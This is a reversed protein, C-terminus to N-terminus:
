CRLLSRIFVYTFIVGPVVYQKVSYVLCPWTKLELEVIPSSARACVHSLLERVNISKSSIKTAAYGVM